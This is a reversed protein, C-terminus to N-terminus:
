TAKRPNLLQLQCNKGSHNTTIGTTLLCPSSASAMFRYGEQADCFQLATLECMSVQKPHVTQKNTQKLHEGMKSKTSAIGSAIYLQKVWVPSPSGWPDGNALLLQYWPAAASDWWSNSGVMIAPQCTFELQPQSGSGVVEISTALPARASESRKGRWIIM